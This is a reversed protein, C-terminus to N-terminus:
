LAVQEWREHYSATNPFGRTPPLTDRRKKKLHLAFTTLQHIRERERERGGQTPCPADDTWIKASPLFVVETLLSLVADKAFSNAFACCRLTTGDTAIVVSANEGLWSVATFIFLTCVTHKNLNDILKFTCLERIFSPRWASQGRLFSIFLVTLCTTKHFVLHHPVHFNNGNSQATPPGEYRLWPQCRAAGATTRQRQRSDRTWSRRELPWSDSNSSTTIDWNANKEMAHSCNSSECFPSFCSLNVSTVAVFREWPSCRAHVSDKNPVTSISTGGLVGLHVTLTTHRTQTKVTNTNITWTQSNNTKTQSKKLTWAVPQM